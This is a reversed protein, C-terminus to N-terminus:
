IGQFIILMRHDFLMIVNSSSLQDKMRNFVSKIADLDGYDVVYDRWRLLINRAILSFGTYLDDECLFTETQEGM